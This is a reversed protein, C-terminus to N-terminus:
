RAITGTATAPLEGGALSELTLAVTDGAFRLDWQWLNILGLEDMTASFHHDSVWGGKSATMVGSRGPSFRNVNDLGIQLTIMPGGAMEPMAIELTAVDGAPFTLRMSSLGYINASLEYTQGSISQAIEPPPPVVQPPGENSAAAESVKSALQAVGDPNPPLPDDSEIAGLVWDELFELTIPYYDGFGSGANLGVVLNEEPYVHIRQGGRGAANYLDPEYYWLYAYGAGAPWGPVSHGAGTTSEEIWESSV